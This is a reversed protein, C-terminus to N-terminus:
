KIKHFENYENCSISQPRIPVAKTYVNKCQTGRGGPTYSSSGMGSKLQAKSAHPRMLLGSGEVMDGDKHRGMGHGSICSLPSSGAEGERGM